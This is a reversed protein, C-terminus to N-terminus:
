CRWLEALIDQWEDRVTERAMGLSEGIERQTYGELVMCLVARQRETLRACARKAIASLREQLKLGLVARANRRRRGRVNRRSAQSPPSM